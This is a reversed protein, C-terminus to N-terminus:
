NTMKRAKRELLNLLENAGLALLSSLLTGWAIKVMNQTRMGDFLLTGLGGANITAAITAIGITSVVAVKIGALIVPAALPLRVKFFSQLESMGMGAAAEVIAPSVSRFGAVINKVLIFQNYLTLVFIATREGLGLVPILLAFLALSPVAYVASFVGVVLSSLVKSRMILLSILGALLLSLLLTVATIQLHQLFPVLVADPYDILYRIM